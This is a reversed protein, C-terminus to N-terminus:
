KNNHQARLRLGTATTHCWVIHLSAATGRVACGLLLGCWSVVSWWHGSDEAQLAAPRCGGSPWLKAKCWDSTQLNEQTNNDTLTKRCSISCVPEPQPTSTSHHVSQTTPTKQDCTCTVRCTVLNTFMYCSSLRKQDTVGIMYTLLYFMCTCRLDSPLSILHELELNSM